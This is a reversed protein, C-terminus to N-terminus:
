EDYGNDYWFDADFASQIFIDDELEQSAFASHKPFVDAPPTFDAFTARRTTEETSPVVNMMQNNKRRQLMQVRNKVQANTRGHFQQAIMTWRSGFSAYDSLLKEDDESTWPDHNIAPSLYTIWRDAVQRQNMGPMKRAIVSWSKEGHIAVLEKLTKDDLKTFTRRCAQQRLM